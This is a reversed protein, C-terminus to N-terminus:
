QLKVIKTRPSWSIELDFIVALKMCSALTKRGHMTYPVKYRKGSPGLVNLHLDDRGEVKCDFAKAVPAVNVYADGDELIADKFERGRIVVAKLELAPEEMAAARAKSQHGSVQDRLLDGVQPMKLGRDWPLVLPDWKGRQPVGLNAQVEGHGLVTTKNVPIKYFDCLQAVVETMRDWQTKTLPDSGPKFPRERADWMCCCSVGISYSNKRATHAAYSDGSKLWRSNASIAYDGKVVNGDGEILIHYHARDLSSAKHRGATWHCIVRDMRVKSLWDSPIRKM